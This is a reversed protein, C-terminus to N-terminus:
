NFFQGTIYNFHRIVSQPGTFDVIDGDVATLTLPGAFYGYINV